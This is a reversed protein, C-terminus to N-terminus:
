KFLLARRHRKKREFPVKKDILPICYFYSLQSQTHKINTSFHFFAKEIFYFSRVGLDYLYLSPVGISSSIWCSDSNPNRGAGNLPYKDFCLAGIIQQICIGRLQLIFNKRKKYFFVNQKYRLNLPLL